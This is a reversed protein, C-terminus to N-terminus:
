VFNYSFAASRGTTHHNDALRNLEDPTLVPGSYRKALTNSGKSPKSNASKQEAPIAGSQAQQKAVQGSM